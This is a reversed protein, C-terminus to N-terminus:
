IRLYKTPDFESEPITGEQGSQMDVVTVMRENSTSSYAGGSAQQYNNLVSERNKKKQAITEASDGPKPLYQKYANDFEQDSIVAGSERRLIANILNRSAQDYQQLESTQLWSPLKSAIGYGIPNLKTIKETLNDIQQGADNVRQAYGAVTYQAQTAPKSTDMPKGTMIADLMKSGEGGPTLDFKKGVENAIEGWSAGSNKMRTAMQYLGEEPEATAKALSAQKLAYDLQKEKFAQTLKDDQRGAALEKIFERKSMGKPRSKPDAGYTEIFKQREAEKRQEELKRNNYLSNFANIRATDLKSRYAAEGTLVGMAKPQNMISIQNLEEISNAKALKKELDELKMKSAKKASPIDIQQINTPSYVASAVPTSLVPQAVTGLNQSTQEPSVTAVPAEAAVPIQEEIQTAM